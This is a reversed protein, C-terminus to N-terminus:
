RVGRGKEFAAKCVKVIAPILEKIDVEISVGEDTIKTPPLKKIIAKLPTTCIERAEKEWDVRAESKEIGCKTCIPILRGCLESPKTPQIWKNGWEHECRAEPSPQLRQTILQSVVDVFVKASEDVDGKFTCPLKDFSFEGITNGDKDHFTINHPMPDQLTIAEPSPSDKACKWCITKDDHSCKEEPTPKEDRLKNTM